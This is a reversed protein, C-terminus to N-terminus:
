QVPVAAHQGDQSAQFHSLEEGSFSDGMSVIVYQGRYSDDFLCRKHREAYTDLLGDLAAAHHRKAWGGRGRLRLLGQLGQGKNSSWVSADQSSKKVYSLDSSTSSSSSHHGAPTSAARALCYAAVLCLCLPWTTRQHKGLEPREMQWAM